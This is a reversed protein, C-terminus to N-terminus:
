PLMSSIPVYVVTKKHLGDLVYEIPEIVDFHEKYFTQRKYKTRLPGSESLYSLPNTKQLAENVLKLTAVDITLNHEELVAEVTNKSLEGALVCIENLENIIEQTASKSVHLIAHM